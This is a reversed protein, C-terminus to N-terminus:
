WKGLGQLTFVSPLERLLGISRWAGQRGAPLSHDRFRSETSAAGREVKLVAGDRIQSRFRIESNTGARGMRCLAFREKCAVQMRPATDSFLGCCIKVDAGVQIGARLYDANYLAIEANRDAEQSVEDM